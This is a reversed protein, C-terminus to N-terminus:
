TGSLFALVFSLLAASERSPKFDLGLVIALFILIFLLLFIVIKRMYM